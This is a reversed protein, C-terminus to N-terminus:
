RDTSALVKGLASPRTTLTLFKDTARKPCPGTAAMLKKLETDDIESGADDDSGENVEIYQTKVEVPEGWTVEANDDVTYPIKYLDADRGYSSQAIVFTNWVEKVWYSPPRGPDDYSATPNAKRWDARATDIRAQFSDRVMDMSYDALCLVETGTNSAKVTGKTAKEGKAKAKLKEWEALAKSAKAQTGKDVGIGAAWKKVRSVAIAVAQSTTKGSRKVARAIECLYEPLGGAKQVWNSGPSDDLSCGAFAAILEREDRDFM